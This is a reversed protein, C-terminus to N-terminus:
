VGYMNLLDQIDPAARGRMWDPSPMRAFETLLETIYAEDANGDRLSYALRNLLQFAAPSMNASGADLADELQVGWDNREEKTLVEPLKEQTLAERIEDRRAQTERAIELARRGSVGSDHGIGYFERSRQTLFPNSRPDTADDFAKKVKELFPHKTEPAAPEPIVADPVPRAELPRDWEEREIEDMGERDPGPTVPWERRRMDKRVADVIERRRGVNLNLEPPESKQAQNVVSVATGLQSMGMDRISRDGLDEAMSEPDIEVARRVIADREDKRLSRLSGTRWYGDVHITDGTASIRLHPPVYVRPGALAVMEDVEHSRAEVSRTLRLLREVATEESEGGESALGFLKSGATGKRLKMLRNKATEFDDFQGQDHWPADADDRIASRVKWKDGQPRNASLSPLYRLELVGKSGKVRVVNDSVRYADAGIEREFGDLRDTPSQEEERERKITELAGAKLSGPMPGGKLAARLSGKRVYGEVKTILGSETPRLHPAVAVRALEVSDDDDVLDDVNEMRVRQRVVAVMGNAKLERLGKGDGVYLIEDGEDVVERVEFERGLDDLVVDGISVATPETWTAQM